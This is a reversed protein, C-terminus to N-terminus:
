DAPGLNSDKCVWRAGDDRLKGDADEGRTPAGDGFHRRPDDPELAAPPERRSGGPALNRRHQLHRWRGSRAGSSVSLISSGYASSSASPPPPSPLSTASHPRAARTRPRCWCCAATSCSTPITRFSSTSRARVPGKPGTFSILTVRTSASGRQTRVFYDRLADREEEAVQNGFNLDRLAAARTGSM